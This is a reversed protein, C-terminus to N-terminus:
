DRVAHRGRGGGRIGCPMGGAAARGRGPLCRGLSRFTCLTVRGSEDGVEVVRQLTVRGSGEYALATQVWADDPVDAAVRLALRGGVPVHVATVAPPFTVTAFSAAVSTEAPPFTVTSAASGDLPPGGPGALGAVDITLNAAHGARTLNLLGAGAAGPEIVVTVPAPQGTDNDPGLDCELVNAGTCVVPVPLPATGNPQPGVAVPPLPPATGNPQPGVAVFAVDNTHDFQGDGSGRSGFAFAFTWNPHFVQIRHNNYDAVAIRMGDSSWAVGQPRSFQGDGDGRSGFAFAFTWNPHFVQIRHSHSEAVAIRGSPGFAVGIPNDLGGRGVAGFAFAFTGNPHFVQIGGDYDAVAIRGDPGFAVSIPSYHNYSTYFQGDAYVYPGFAFAFTGNPHFVQVRRNGYDAVAIRGDPGVAIGSLYDFEGIGNGYSGFAFAFTGNPHFVQVRDNGRDSVAIRGDPGVAISFPFYGFVGDGRGYSGFAFAFTGNPHFVQVRRNGGDIVAIGASWDSPVVPPHVFGDPYQVFSAPPQVFGFAVDAADSIQGVGRGYSGFAFAFTGNPHFVQVRDNIRDSVAIRGDPGFGIGM